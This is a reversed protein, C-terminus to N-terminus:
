FVLQAEPTTLSCPLPFLFRPLILHQHLDEEHIRLTAPTSQNWCAVGNQGNLLGLVTLWPNRPQLNNHNLYFTYGFVWTHSAQDGTCCLESIPRSFYSSESPALNRLPNIREHDWQRIPQLLDPGPYSLFIGSPPGKFPKDQEVGKRETEKRRVRSGPQQSTFLKGRSHGEAMITRGWLLSLFLLALM